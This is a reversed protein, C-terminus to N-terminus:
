PMRWIYIIIGILTLGGSVGFIWLLLDMFHM